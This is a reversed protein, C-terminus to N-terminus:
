ARRLGERSGQRGREQYERVLGYDELVVGGKLKRSLEEVELNTKPRMGRGRNATLAPEAGLTKVPSPSPSLVINIDEDDEEEEIHAEVTDVMGGDVEEGVQQLQEASGGGGSSSRRLPGQPSAPPARVGEGMSPSVSLSAGGAHLKAQQQQQQQLQKEAEWRRLRSLFDEEEEQTSTRLSEFAAHHLRSVEDLHDNSEPSSSLSHPLSSSPSDNDEDDCDMSDLPPSTSSNIFAFPNLPLGSSPWGTGKSSASTSPSSGLSEDAFSSSSGLSGNRLRTSASTSSAASSSSTTTTTIPTSVINPLNFANLSSQFEFAPELHGSPPANSPFTFAPSLPARPRDHQQQHHHQSYTRIAWPDAFKAPSSGSGQMVALSLLLPALTLPARPLATPCHVSSNGAASRPKVNSRM